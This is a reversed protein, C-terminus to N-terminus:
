EVLQEPQFVGADDAAGEGVIAEHDINPTPPKTAPRSVSCRGASTHQTTAPQECLVEALREADRLAAHDDLGPAQPERARTGLEGVVGLDAGGIEPYSFSGARTNGPSVAAPERTRYARAM